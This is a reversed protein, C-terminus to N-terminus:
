DEVIKIARTPCFKEALEVKSRLASAPREDLLEVKGLGSVRFVEPAEGM